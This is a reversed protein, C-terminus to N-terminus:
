LLNLLFPVFTARSSPLLRYAREDDLYRQLTEEMVPRLDRVNLVFAAAIDYTLQMTDLLKRIMPAEELIRFGMYVCSMVHPYTLLLIQRVHEAYCPMIYPQPRYAEDEICYLRHVSELKQLYMASVERFAQHQEEKTKLTDKHDTYTPITKDLLGMDDSMWVQIPNSDISTNPNQSVEAKPTMTSAAAGLARFPSQGLISDSEDTSQLADDLAATDTDFIQHDKRPTAHTDAVSATAVAGISAAAAASSPFSMSVGMKKSNVIFSNNNVSQRRQQAAREMQIKASLRVLTREREAQQPTRGYMDLEWKCNLVRNFIAQLDEEMMPFELCANTDRVFQLMQMRNNKVLCNHLNSHLFLLVGAMVDADRATISDPNQQAYENGFCKQVTEWVKAEFMPRDWSMFKCTTDRMAVDIPVDRYNFCHLYEQLLMRSAGDKQNVKEFISCIASRSIGTYEFLFRAFLAYSSTGPAASTPDAREAEGPAASAMFGRSELFEKAEKWHGANISQVAEQAIRKNHLLYHIHKWHYSMSCHKCWHPIATGSASNDPPLVMNQGHAESNGSNSSENDDEEGGAAVTTSHSGTHLANPDAMEDSEWSDWHLETSENSCITGRGEEQQGCQADKKYNRRLNQAYERPDEAIWRYLSTMLTHIVVVCESRLLQQQDSSLWPYADGNDDVHDLFTMEVVHEVLMELMGGYEAGPDFAPNCDYNVFLSVCLHPVAFLQRIMSLVAHKQRFGAYQSAMLPLLFAGLLTHLDRAMHYHVKRLLMGLLHVAREFLTFPTAMALNKAICGLLEYKCANMALSVWTTCRHEKECNAVPLGDLVCELVWLGVDRTQVDSNTSTLTGSCPRSACHCMRRLVILLDKLPSPLAGDSTNLTSLADLVLYEDISNNFFTHPDFSVKLSAALPNVNLSTASATSSAATASLQPRTSTSTLHSGDESIRPGEQGIEASSRRIEDFVTHKPSPEQASSLQESASRNEDGTCLAHGMIQQSPAAAPSSVIQSHEEEHQQPQTADYGGPQGGSRPAAATSASELTLLSTRWSDPLRVTASESPVIHIWTYPENNDVDTKYDDLITDTSFASHTQARGDTDGVVEDYTQMTVFAQVIRKVAARLALFAEHRATERIGGAAVKFCSEIVRVATNGHFLAAMDVTDSDCHTARFSTTERKRGACCEGPGSRRPPAPTSTIFETILRLARTQVAPESFSQLICESLAYYAGLAVSVYMRGSRCPARCEKSAGDGGATGEYSLAAPDVVLTVIDSPVPMVHVLLELATIAHETLKRRKWFIASLVYGWVVSSELATCFPLSDTPYTANEALQTASSTTGSSLFSNSLHQEARGVGDAEAGNSGQLATLGVANTPLRAVTEKSQKVAVEKASLPRASASPSGSTCARFSTTRERRSAEAYSTQTLQTLRAGKAQRLVPSVSSQGRGARGQTELTSLPTTSASAGSTSSGRRHPPVTFLRECRAVASEATKVSQRLEARVSANAVTSDLHHHVEHLVVRCAELTRYMLEAPPEPGMRPALTSPCSFMM